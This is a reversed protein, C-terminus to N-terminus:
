EGGTKFNLFEVKQGCFINKHETHVASALAIIDAYLLGSPKYLQSQHKKVARYPSM